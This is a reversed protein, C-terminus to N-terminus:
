GDGFGLNEKIQKLRKWVWSSGKEKIQELWRGVSPSGKEKVPEEAGLKEWGMILGFWGKEKCLSFRVGPKDLGVRISGLM